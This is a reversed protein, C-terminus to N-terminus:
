KLLSKITNTFYKVMEKTDDVATVCMDFEYMKKVWVPVFFTSLGMDSEPLGMLINSKLKFSYWRFLGPLGTSLLRCIDINDEASKTKALIVSTQTKLSVDNSIFGNWFEVSIGLTKLIDIFCTCIIINTTFQNANFDGTMAGNFLIKITKKDRVQESKIWHEPDGCMFRDIDLEAGEESFKRKKRSKFALNQLDNLEPYQQLLKDKAKDYQSLMNETATGYMLAEKTKKYTKYEDGFRWHVNETVDLDLGKNNWLTNNDVCEVLDTISDFMITQHPKREGEEFILETSYNVLEGPSLDKQYQRVEFGEIEM